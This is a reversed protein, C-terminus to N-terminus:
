RQLVVKRTVMGDETSLRVFYVGAGLRLGADSTGDWTVTNLGMRAQSQLRSVERGSVDAVSITVEQAHALAFRFMTEASFPNPQVDFSQEVTAETLGSTKLTFPVPSEISGQHLDPSFWMTESLDQVTGTASDFLKFKLREDGANAYSTLFFLYANLPAVYIAQASGRVETGAFVGLEMPATTANQGNAKLMGILTMSHEYHTPHVNWFKPIPADRSELIGDNPRQQSPQPYTLTGATAVKIQYGNPPQMYQLNGIWGFSPSIYQAFATQSKILDGKQSPLSSLAEDIPLSYSPVYGIWNWGTVVPINTTAPDILNGLMKLTDPLDARYIYMTTNNLNNLTGFWGGSYTSFSTQSKMLDNEPHNLSALAANLSNDPFALNFSLWNWGYGFPIDRLVLSNTHVAQPDDPIGIVNDPQFTFAEVVSGYRLCASADWIELRVDDLQDDPNGYVTLYALYTNLEPVYRVNARGRLEDGIYAAVIDEIDTSVQGQINLKLVMNMTNEFLNPNVNWNPPRCVVRVGIPLPEDGGMFFPNQDAETHLVITDRWNGFALTSDVEFRIPLVQNAVLTGASPVVRVWNPAGTITFKVPAGGRNHIAATGIKYEGEYKTLGMSDTLWALENRDVYFEWIGNNQKTGNFGNGVLDKIDRVEARLLHNEFHKNQFVPDIVIKNGYCTINAQILQNTSADYLGWNNKVLTPFQSDQILDKQSCNIPQNFTFSIEDGVNFVGDSPEPVGFISPPERDISGKIIHSYGPNGIPGGDCIAIAQIEYPGDSLPPTGGTNWTYVEYVDGLSGKPIYNKPNDNTINIWADNGDGAGERRWQLRVGLLDPDKKDYDFVTIDVLNAAALNGPDSKVVWGERPSSIDVESCPEQFQVKLYVASYLFPDLDPLVGLANCRIDHCDSLLVLELGDYFYETPGREVTVTVDITTGWPIAYYVYKDLAGGNLYIKAGHPNSEPGTTLAYTFTEGSQSNNQLQFKFAAQGNSPVNLRTPGDNDVVLKMGQRHATGVEWPCSTQGAVIIFVPTHFLPDDKVDMTWTDGPDDDKLVYGVTTGWKTIKGSGDVSAGEYKGGIKSDLKFGYGSAESSTQLFAGFLGEFKKTLESDEQETTDATQSYEYQVGADWSINRKFTAQAKAEKNMKIYDLWRQKSEAYTGNVDQGDLILSDLYRIVNKEINWESYMYTTPFSDPEVSTVTNVKVTCNVDDFSIFKSESIIFNFATGVYVDNGATIIQDKGNQDKGNNFYSEGGVVLDGDDTSIRERATLCYEMSTKSTKIMRADFESTIGALLSIKISPVGPFTVETLPGFLADLTFFPGGGLSNETHFTNCKTEGKEMYAYSGDGPPDRLIFNPVMPTVTTFKEEGKIIGTILARRAFTAKRGNVDATVQMNQLYPANPNPYAARFDYDFKKNRMTDMKQELFDYNLDFTNDISLLASDLLCRDGIEQGPGYQEYVNIDLNMVDGDEVVVLPNGDIDPLPLLPKAPDKCLSYYNEFGDVGVTPPAIYIFDVNTSDKKTLNIERGGQLQFDKYIKNNRHDIIAITVDLPPLPNFEYHGDTNTIKQEWVFCEDKTAVKIVCNDVAGEIISRRCLGGAIQGSIKRTTIDYFTINPIPNALNEVIWFSPDFSHGKYEPRLKIQSTGPDFNIVFSGTSDTFIKPSHSEDNVLIEVNQALCDTNAYRVSGYVPIQSQDVFDVLDVSTVSPNLTVQRTVPIFKHPETRQRAAFPTWQTLLNKTGAGTLVSGSNYLFKGSGEDLAFYVRLGRELTGRGNEVHDLIKAASLTTDYLAIEDILGGYYDIQSNGAPRAGVMWTKGPESWNGTVGTFTHPTGFPVGKKYATVTRNFGSSDITFALHQYNMDLAGFNHEQGNLYFFVDSTLGNPKLLLQFDNLAWKKSLLCQTGDPGASNVWLELTSKKTLSFNPLTAYTTDSRKFKLARYMYFNKAPEALFTIGTGYSASEIRYFGQDNTKGMTRVYPRDPDFKPGCFFLKNRPKRAIDFSGTGLFEDMKWYYKLNPTQSSATGMMVEGLDLEDLRRHYIRLEDLKGEWTGSADTRAGISLEEASPLPPVPAIGTLTGNIYLRGNGDADMTFAVHHWGNKTSDPFQGSMLASAADSLAVEIGEHGGASAIPRLLLPFPALSIIGAKANAQVTKVWFTMSWEGNSPPLLNGATGTDAVAFAGDGPGFQASFGQLPTLCVLAETVPQGGGANEIKGTVVGNPVQFGDARGPSGEGFFNIGRVEYVYPRGAIVNVDNYNRTKIDLLALFVSDRYLKFGDTPQAGRPNPEWTIQIRDLLEGQTAKVIPASPAVLLHSWFGFYIQNDKSLVSNNVASEGLTFSSRYRGSFIDTTSGYNFFVDVSFVSDAKIVPSCNPDTGKQALLLAGTGCYVLLVALALIRKFM